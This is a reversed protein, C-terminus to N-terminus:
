SPRKEEGEHGGWFRKIRGLFGESEPHCDAGSCETFQRLLEKQRNTLNQPTEVFMEVYLDGNPAGQALKPLTDPSRVGLASSRAGKAFGVEQEADCVDGPEPRKTKPTRAIFVELARHARANWSEDSGAAPIGAM